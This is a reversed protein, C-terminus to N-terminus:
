TDRRDQASEEHFEEQVAAIIVKIERARAGEVAFTSTVVAGPDEQGDTVVTLEELAEAILARKEPPLTSLVASLVERLVTLRGEIDANTIDPM